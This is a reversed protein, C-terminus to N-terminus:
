SNQLNRTTNSPHHTALWSRLSSAAAKKWADDFRPHKTPHTDLPKIFENPDWFEAPDDPLDISLGQLRNLRAHYALKLIGDADLPCEAGVDSEIVAKIIPELSAM